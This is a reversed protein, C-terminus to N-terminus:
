LSSHCRKIHGKLYPITKFQKSCHSCQQPENKGHKVQIHQNLTSKLKSKYECYACLHWIIDEQKGHRFEIHHKMRAKRITKYDCKDCRLWLDKDKDMHLCIIHNKLHGKWSTRYECHGCKFQKSIEEATHVSIVHPKLHSKYKTKFDCKECKYWSIASDSHVNQIHSKLHFASKCRTYCQECEFWEVDEANTHKCLIHQKMNSPWKAKYSCHECQLWKINEESTHKRIIHRSLNGLVNTQFDCHACKQLKYNNNTAKNLLVSKKSGHASSVAENENHSNHHLISTLLGYSQFKCNVCQYVEDDLDNTVNKSFLASSYNNTKPKFNVLFKSKLDIRSNYIGLEDRTCIFTNYLRVNQIHQQTHLDFIYKLNYEFPCLNCYNISLDENDESDIDM